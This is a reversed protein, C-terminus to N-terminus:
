DGRLRSREGMKCDRYAALELQLQLQREQLELEEMVDELQFLGEDLRGCLRGIDALQLQCEVLRRRIPPVCQLSHQMDSVALASRESLARVTRIDVDIRDARDANAAAAAHLQQWDLEVAALHAAGAHANLAHGPFAIIPSHSGHSLPPPPPPSSSSSSTSPSAFAFPQDAGPQPVTSSTQRIYTNALSESLSESLIRGEHLASSVRKKLGSFM